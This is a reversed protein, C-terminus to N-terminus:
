FAEEPSVIALLQKVEAAQVSQRSKEHAVILNRLMRRIIDIDQCPEYFSALLPLQLQQLYGEIDKRTYIRGRNFVNIYLSVHKEPQYVLMFLNPMNVGYVPMGLKQAILMYAVCLSIPNGKRTELVQNFLSNGVANFDAINPTFRLKNFFIYNFERVLDIPHLDPKFSIWAEVYLQRVANELAALTLNPYRYRAILWLGTMLDGKEAYWKRFDGVLKEFQIRHILEEIYRQGEAHPMNQWEEELLPVADTGIERIKKEVHSRIEPDPDDLLSVLAKLENASLM